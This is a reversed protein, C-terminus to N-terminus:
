FFYPIFTCKTFTYWTMLTSLQVLSQELTKDTYFGKNNDYVVFMNRANDIELLFRHNSAGDLSKNGNILFFGSFHASELEPYAQILNAKKLQDTNCEFPKKGKKIEKPCTKPFILHPHTKLTPRVDNNKPFLSSFEPAKVAWDLFEHPTLDPKKFLNQVWKFDANENLLYIFLYRKKTELNITDKYEIGYTLACTNARILQHVDISRLKETIRKNQAIATNKVRKEIEESAHAFVQFALARKPFKEGREITQLEEATLIRGQRIIAKGLAACNGGCTGKLTSADSVKTFIDTKQSTYVLHWGVYPNPSTLRDFIKKAIRAAEPLHGSFEQTHFHGRSILPYSTKIM